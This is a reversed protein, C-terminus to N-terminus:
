RPQFSRSGTTASPRTAGGIAGSTLSNMTRENPSISCNSPCPCEIQVYDQEGSSIVDIECRVISGSKVTDVTKESPVLRLTGDPLRKTEMLYYRRIVAFGAKDSTIVLKQNTAVQRLEASYYLKGVGQRSLTIQNKGQHLVSIPLDIM